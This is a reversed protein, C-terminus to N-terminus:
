RVQDGKVIPAGVRNGWETWSGDYNRVKSFGLLYSLVFWTHSSREGIRCYAIVEQNGDLGLEGEYIARLEGVSKFTGDEHCARSWPCNVGGAIHGARLAGEQPYQPMHLLEGTYEGPSRVDVLQGKQEVYPMVEHAFARWTYDPGTAQYNTEPWSPEEKTTPRGEDSWKQRGGNLIKMKEHGFMKFAWLAYCAWWNNNDGYFVLTQDRTIGKKSCLKEFNEKNVYDRILQDQLESQWDVMVSGPIHGAYYLMIDEDSEIVRIQPDELHDALWQTSVIMEPHAYDSM